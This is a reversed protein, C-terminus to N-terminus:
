TGEKAKAVRRERKFHQTVELKGNPLVNTTVAFAEWGDAGYSDLYELEPVQNSTAYSYEWRKM